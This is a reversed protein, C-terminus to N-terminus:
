VNGAIAAAVEAAMRAQDPLVHAYLTLTIAENAHGLRRSVVHPPVGRRLLLSAHCHRCDHLTLRRVKAAKVIKQFRDNLSRTPGVRSGDPHTFVAFRDRESPQLARPQTKRWDRLIEVTEADLDITRRGRPTKVDKLTVRGSVVTFQRRITVTGADLDLDSWDCGLVEGRRAGTQGLFRWLPWLEDEAAKSLWMKYEPETWVAREPRTTSRGRAAGTAANRGVLRPVADGLAKHLADHVYSVARSPLADYAGKVDELEVDALKMKWIPLPHLKALARRYATATNGPSRTEYKASWSDLYEGFLLRGTPRKVGKQRDGLQETRWDQASKLTECNKSPNHRRGSSDIWWPATARYTVRGSPWLVKSIGAYKTPTKSVPKM